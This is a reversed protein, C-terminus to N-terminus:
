VFLIVAKIISEFIFMCDFQSSVLDELIESNMECLRSTSQSSMLCTSENAEEDSSIM